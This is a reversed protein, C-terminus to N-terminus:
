LWFLSTSGQFNPEISPQSGGHPRQSEFQIGQLRLWHELVSLQRWTWM